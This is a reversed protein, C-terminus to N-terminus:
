DEFWESVDRESIFAEIAKRREDPPLANFQRMYDVGALAPGTSYGSNHAEIKMRKVHENGPTHPFCYISNLSRCCKNSCGKIACDPWGELDMM